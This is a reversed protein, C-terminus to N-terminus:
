AQALLAFAQATTRSVSDKLAQAQEQTLLVSVSALDFQLAAFRESGQWGEDVLLDYLQMGDTVANENGPWTLCQTLLACLRATDTACSLLVPLTEEGYQERLALQGGMTLRLRVERGDVTLPFYGRKM